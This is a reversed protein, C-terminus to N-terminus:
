YHIGLSGNNRLSNLFQFRATGTEPTAAIATGLGMVLGGAGTYAPWNPLNGGNPNSTKAFNVWYSSMADALALDSANVAGHGNAVLNQFVYPVESVHIPVPNYPSTQSFYYSYVPSKGTTMQLNAMKWTQSTIVLDGALSVQSQQAQADSTAPYLQLFTSLNGAGFATSSAATFHAASDRPIGAVASFILGENANQGALLPVKQQLGAAFRTYPDAPLVYGDVSPSYAPETPDAMLQAATATRLQALTTAGLAAGLHSGIQAAAAHSAMVGKPSEWFAGSEAIAKHFAGTTLPSALLIGVAHAGASEGFVTINGPDGGFAAANAKVWQLAAVQDLMGYMGSSKGASEADLDTRALFGFVGLRYNVSVVVAGKRALNGGEWRPDGSTGFQFGGGHLWVMVPRKEQTSQAGTWVNLTLCDESAQSNDVPGFATGQWCTPGYQTADKGSSWNAAPQPARWRLDGVPAAAFPIGKFSLIGAADRATGSLTGNAVAVTSTVALGAADGGGCGALMGGAVAIAIAIASAAGVRGTIGSLQVM